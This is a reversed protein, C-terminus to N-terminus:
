LIYVFVIFDFGVFRLSVCVFRVYFVVFFYVLLPIDSNLDRQQCLENGSTAGRSHLGGCLCFYYFSFCFRMVYLRFVCVVYVFCFLVVFVFVFM